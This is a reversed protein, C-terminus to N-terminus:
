VSVRATPLNMGGGQDCEGERPKRAKPYSVRGHYIGCLTKVLSDEVQHIERLTIDCEDFQGDNLRDMVVQHVTNEIRGVTPESLARVAGEVGDCLMLVATEKSLPKPGPYRFDAESVERDHRGSAVHPQKEAAVHHFYRVVTTGHHEAIFQHLVPPLKYQRALELGDKVHGLIILLSMTPALNDHRSIRGEQNETFYEARHIKGVDHYLAGVQALLGNAGLRECAAEALTGLVLSHNYTGPAERALLQLLPRTPDRWELLTLSTAIRFIREIFPLVGSVVFASMLACSGAWVAHQLVFRLTQGEMLGGASSALMIAAATVLGVKMLKTRTRIEDLQYVTAAVGTLLMLLFTLHNRVITATLVTLICMAGIAFRRPYAICLVSAAILCPASVLEPFDPLKIDLLRAAAITVLMVAVFAITRPRVEFLNPHYLRAYILLGGSLVIVLAVLGTRQLWREQRLEAAEDNDQTLFAEYAAHHARLLAYGDDKLEGPSIYPRDKEYTTFADPTAKEAKQLADATREQAYIISPQERFVSVIMAEVASRLEYAPVRRAVIGASGQLALDNGQLVLESHPVQAVGIENDAGRTELLIFDTASRPDRPEKSLGRVVYQSELPLKDIWEQFLARGADDPMDVLARLRDYAAREVPWKLGEMATSYTDFTDEEAAVQYLRMLDARIRGFTLAPDNMVYFSATKERAAKRDNTTQKIDPVQFRVKAYIPQEIRQGVVYDLSGEGWLAVVSAAAVFGAGVMTPWNVVRHFWHSWRSGGPKARQERLRRGRNGNKGTLKFM